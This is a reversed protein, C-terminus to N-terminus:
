TYEKRYFLSDCNLAMKKVGDYEIAELDLYNFSTPYLKCNNNVHDHKGIIQMILHSNLQHIVIKFNVNFVLFHLKVFSV